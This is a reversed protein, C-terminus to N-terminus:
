ITKENEIDPSQLNKINMRTIHLVNRVLSSSRDFQEHPYALTAEHQENTKLFEFLM